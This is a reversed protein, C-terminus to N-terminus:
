VFLFMRPVVGVRFISRMCPRNLFYMVPYCRSIGEILGGEFQCQLIKKIRVMIESTYYVDLIRKVDKLFHVGV